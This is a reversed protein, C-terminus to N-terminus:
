REKRPFYQLDPPSANLMPQATSLTVNVHNWDEGSHQTLNALYDVKVDEEVKGARSGGPSM